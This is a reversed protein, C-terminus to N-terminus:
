QVPLKLWQKWVHYSPRQVLNEDILGTDKWLAAMESTNGGASFTNIAADYDYSTWWVIFKAHKKQCFDFLYNVYDEQWQVTGEKKLWATNVDEAIYGTEAVAFPKSSNIDIYSQFLGSPILAPNTSGHVPSGIDFCPYASITIWDSYPELQKANALFKPDSSAIFSIFCPTNPFAVKLKTYVMSLFQKYEEFDTAKWGGINSEPSFNIFDAHLQNALYIVFKVYADVVSSDNFHKNAWTDAYTSTGYYGALGMRDSTNLAGLTLFVKKDSNTKQKRRNLDDILAQPMPLNNYAEEWPIGQDFHHSVMDCNNNIFSYVLNYGTTTIDPPCTTVGLYFSRTDYKLNEKKCSYIFLVIITIFFLLVYNKKM